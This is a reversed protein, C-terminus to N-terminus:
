ELAYVYYEVALKGSESRTFRGKGILNKGQIWSEEKNSEDLTVIPHNTVYSETFGSDNSKKLVVDVVQEGQIVVGSYAFHIGGGNKKSKLYLQCDLNTITGDRGAKTTLNDIGFEVETDFPYKPDLTKTYGGNLKVLTLSGQANKYIPQPEDADVHLFFAPKLSAISSPDSM